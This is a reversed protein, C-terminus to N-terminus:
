QAPELTLNQRSLQREIAQKLYDLRERSANSWVKIKQGEKLIADLEYTEREDSKHKVVVVLQRLDSCALSRNGPYPLPGHHVYVRESSVEITTCNLATVLFQYCFLLALLLLAFPALQVWIDPREHPTPRGVLAALGLFLITGLLSALIRAWSFWQYTVQFSGFEKHVELGAPVVETISTTSSDKLRLHQIIAAELYRITHEDSGYVLEFKQGDKLVARLEYFSAKPTWEIGTGESPLFLPIGKKTKKETRIEKLESCQVSRNGPYPLPGHHVSLRDFAIEIMTRNTLVATIRYIGWLGVILCVGMIATDLFAAIGSLDTLRFSAMIVGFFLFLITGPLYILLRKWSFWRYTACLEGFGRQLNLKSALAAEDEQIQEESSQSFPLNEM